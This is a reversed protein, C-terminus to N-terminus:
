SPPSVQRFDPPITVTLQALNASTPSLWRFDVYGREGHISFAARVPLYTAPDIWLAPSGDRFVLKIADIGGVRQRGDMRLAGCNLTEGIFVPWGGPDVIIGPGPMMPPCGPVVSQERSNLEFTARWWTRDHYNVGVQQTAGGMPPAVSEDSVQRGDADFTTIRLRGQFAWAVTSGSVASDGPPYVTRTYEVLDAQDTAALANEIHTVFAASQAQQEGGAPLLVALLSAIATALALGAAARFWRGRRSRWGVTREEARAATVAARARNWADTSPGPMEDRFLRLLDIEDPV